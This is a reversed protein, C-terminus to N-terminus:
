DLPDGYLRCMNGNNYKLATMQGQKDVYHMTFKQEASFNLIMTM